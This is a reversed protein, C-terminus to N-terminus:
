SGTGDTGQTDVFRTELKDTCQALPDDTGVVRFTCEGDGLSLLPSREARPREGAPDTSTM